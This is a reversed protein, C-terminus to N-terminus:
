PGAGRCLSRGLIWPSVHCILALTPRCRDLPIQWTVPVQAFGHGDTLYGYVVTRCNGTVGVRARMHSVIPPSGYPATHTVRSSADPKVGM